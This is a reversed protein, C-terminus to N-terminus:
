AAPAVRHWYAYHREFGFKRYMAVAATNAADVQLFARTAGKAQGWTLLYDVLASAYGKRRARTATRLNFLGLQDGELRALGTAALGNITKLSVFKQPGLWLSQRAIDRAEIDAESHKLYHLDALGDHESREMLRVGPPLPTGDRDSALNLTMVQTEVEFAYGRRQLLADLGAPALADNLRFIARQGHVAYWAEIHDVLAEAATDELSEAAIATASNARRTDTGSARLIWGEFFAQYTAPSTTLTLEELRRIDRDTENMAALRVANWMGGHIEGAPNSAWRVSRRSVAELPVCGAVCFWHPIPRM